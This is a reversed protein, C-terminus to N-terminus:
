SRCCSTGQAARGLARALVARPDKEDVLPEGSPRLLLPVPRDDAAPAEPAEPLEFAEHSSDSGEFDQKTSMEECTSHNFLARYRYPPRFPLSFHFM